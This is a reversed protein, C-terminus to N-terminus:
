EVIRTHLLVVPKWTVALARSNGLREVEVELKATLNTIRGRYLRQIGTGKGDRALNALTREARAIKSRYTSQIALTQGSVVADNEAQRGIEVEDRTRDLAGCLNDVLANEIAASDEFDRLGGIALAKLILGGVDDHRDGAMSVAVARLETTPRLGTTSLLALLVLFDGPPGGSLLVRGFRRIPPDQQDLFRTAARVLPHQVAMFEMSTTRATDADFTLYIPDNDRLKPILGNLRETSGPSRDAFRILRTALDGTGVLQWAEKGDTLRRLRAGTGAVFADLVGRIEPGGIYRGNDVTDRELGDILLQDVGTLLGTSAEGLKALDSKRNELAVARRDVEQLREEPSRAPDLALRTLESLEDRLIPELEGISENFVRIRRYLREFIDTEITGPVHFNVIHIREFKQGFRDIRGIRQEVRMPNWPLDYNVLAGCFEFDLGEAGVESILLIDFKGDRFDQMIKARADMKVSGDMVEVSWEDGLKTKLYSLTKRFFSFIMVQQFGATNLGRLGTLFEDFKTDTSGLTGAAARVRQTAVHLSGTTPASSRAALTVEDHDDFDDADDRTSAQVDGRDVRQRMVQLCSAAQRLPMITAFGVVGNETLAKLEVWRRVAAYFDAEEDTWHVDITQAVRTAKADPVDAKRTRTVITSLVNLDFLLRQCEARAEVTLSAASHLLARVRTYEPRLMLSSGFVTHELQDLSQEVLRPDAGELRLRRIADNVIRNPGIQLDFIAADPFTDPDLLTLLNFLDGNGLNLPTASLFLLVDAWDGLLEALDFSRTGTNRLYHAEDVVILDFRPQLASLRDILDSVRLSELSVIGLLAPDRGEELQEVFSQLRGRDLIDLERDFRRRMENQWKRTLSAPCVVLGRRITSRQDLETWILGAEITKGLGVEDAILLRQSTSNLLKLLPKFQYPRYVTRTSGFSYLVDALPNTLKTLTLELAIEAATAPTARLWVAPDNSDVTVAELSAERVRRVDRGFAIQYQWEDTSWAPQGYVSGITGDGGVLTVLTGLVFRATAKSAPLAAAWSMNATALAAWAEAPPKLEHQSGSWERGGGGGNVILARWRGGLRFAWTGPPAQVGPAPVGVRSEMSVLELPEGGVYLVEIENLPCIRAISGPDELQIADHHDAFESPMWRSREAGALRGPASVNNLGSARSQTWWRNISTFALEPSSSPRQSGTVPRREILPVADIPHFAHAEAGASDHPRGTGYM